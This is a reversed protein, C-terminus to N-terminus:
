GSKAIERVTGPNERLVNMITRVGEASSMAGYVKKPDDVNVIQVPVTIQPAGGSGPPPGNVMMRPQEQTLTENDNVSARGGRRFQPMPDRNDNIAQLLGLHRRTAMANVVFEGDSLRAPISDSTGSGPGRVIGGDKFQMSVAQINSVISAAQAAVTAAAVLNAPFPLSLANAIGQQIKIVADAIAFAKSVMFLARYVRSQEGVFGKTIDALSGFTAEASTLALSQRAVEMDRLRRQTDLEIELRRAAAEEELIIRAGLADEVIQLREDELLRLEDLQAQQEFDGGLDKDLSSLDGVLGINAQSLRAGRADMKGEGVLERIAELQRIADERSSNLADYVKKQDGLAENEEVLGTIRAEEEPTLDRLLRAEMQLVAARAEQGPLLDGLIKNELEMGEVYDRIAAADRAAQLSDLRADVLSKEVDILDRGLEKELQQVESRREAERRNLGLLETEDMVSKAYDTFLALDKANQLRDLQAGVVEREATTLSRDIREEIRAFGAAKERAPGLLGLIKEENELETVYEAIREADTKGTKKPGAKGPGAIEPLPTPKFASDPMSELLALEREKVQIQQQYNLAGRAREETSPGIGMAASVVQVGGRVNSWYDGDVDFLDNRKGKLEAIQGRAIEIAALRANQALRLAQDAASGYAGAIARILPNTDNAANGLTNVDMGAKRAKEELDLLDNVVTRASQDMGDLAAQASASESYLYLFAGVVALIGATLLAVPSLLAMVAGQLGKMAVGALAARVTTAGLAMELAILQRIYVITAATAQVLAGGVWRAIFFAALLAIAKAVLDINNALVVLGDAFASQIGTSTALEGFYKTVSNTLVQFGQSITPITKAFREDIEDTAAQFANIITAGTIKGDEGMKRLEGRTVGLHQSIVDAVAPLQELVSRLEDGRLTGSAIGQSLQILGAAAEQSSAGSLIIAKNLSETFQFAADMSLGMDKTALRVRAFLEVTSEWSSRTRQSIEYLRETAKELEGTSSTVVRLRNQLHTYTDALKVLGAVGVSVGAFAFARALANQMSGARREIAGLEDEVARRGTRAKRPDIEVVIRYTAM